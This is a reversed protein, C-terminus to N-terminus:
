PIVRLEIFMGNADCHAATLVFKPAILSGACGGESFLLFM